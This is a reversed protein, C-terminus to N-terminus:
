SQCSGGADGGGTVAIGISPPRTPAAVLLAAMGDIYESWNRLGDIAGVYKGAALLVCAPWRRFGYRVAERRADASLLVGVAFRGPFAGAIQPVVVALDLTERYRAPDELFVLLTHGPQGTFADFNEATVQTFGHRTFLQDLLPYRPSDASADATAPPTTSVPTTMSTM